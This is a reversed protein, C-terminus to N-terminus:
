ASNRQCSTGPEPAVGPGYVFVTLATAPQAVHLTASGTDAVTRTSSLESNVRLVSSPRTNSSLFRSPLCSGASGPMAPARTTISSPVDALVSACPMNWTGSRSDPGRATLSSRAPSPIAAWAVVSAEVTTLM